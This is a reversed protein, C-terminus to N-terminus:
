LNQQSDSNFAKIKSKKIVRSNLLRSRRPNMEIVIPRKFPVFAGDEFISWCMLDVEEKLQQRISMKVQPRCSVGKENVKGKGKGERMEGKDVICEDKDDDRAVVDEAIAVIKAATTSRSSQVATFLQRYAEGTTLRSSHEELGYNIAQLVVKPEKPNSKIDENLQALKESKLIFSNLSALPLLKTHYETLLLHSLLKLCNLEKCITVVDLSDEIKSYAKDFVDSSAMHFGHKDQYISGSETKPKNSSERDKSNVPNHLNLNDPMVKKKCCSSTNNRRIGYISEVLKDKLLRDGYNYICYLLGFSFYIVEKLGGIDGITELISRYQRTYTIKQGSSVIQFKFYSSCKNWDSIEAENCTVQSENRGTVAGNGETETSYSTSTIDPLLFGRSNIIESQGLVIRKDQSFRTSLVYYEDISSFYNLPDKYNGMDLLATNKVKIFSMANVEAAPLCESGLTCPSVQIILGRYKGGESIKGSLELKDSKPNLCIGVSNVFNVIDKSDIQAFFAADDKKLSSCPVLDIPTNLASFSSNASDLPFSQIYASLHVYKALQDLPVGQNFKNFFIMVPSHKGELVDIAPYNHSYYTQSDVKPNETSFFDTITYWSAGVFFFTALFYTFAGCITQAGEKGAIKLEVRAAFKDMSRIKDGFGRM